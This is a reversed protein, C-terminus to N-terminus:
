LRFDPHLDVTMPQLAPRWLQDLRLRHGLHRPQHPAAFPEEPADWSTHLQVLQGAVHQDILLKSEAKAEM